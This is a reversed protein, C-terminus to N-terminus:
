HTVTANFISLAPNPDTTPLMVAKAPATQSGEASVVYMIAVTAGNVQVVARGTGDVSYTYTFNNQGPGMPGSTDQMGNMNM